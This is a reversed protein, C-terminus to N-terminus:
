QKGTTGFLERSSVESIRPDARFKIRQRNGSSSVLELEFQIEELTDIFVGISRSEGWLIPFSPALETDGMFDWSHLLYNSLVRM